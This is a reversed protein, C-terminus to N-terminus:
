IYFELQNAALFFFAKASLRVPALDLFRQGSFCHPDHAPRAIAIVFGGHFAEPAGEFQWQFNLRPYFLICASLFVFGPLARREAHASGCAQFPV